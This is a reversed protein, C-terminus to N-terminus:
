GAAHALRQDTRRSAPLSLLLLPAYGVLVVPLTWLVDDPLFWDATAVFAAAAFAIAGIWLDRLDSARLADAWRRDLESAGRRALMSRSMGWCAVLVLVALGVLGGAVALPLGPDARVTRDDLIVAVAMTGSTAVLVVAVIVWGPHLYDFLSAQPPADPGTGPSKVSGLYASLGSGSAMFGVLFALGAAGGIGSPVSDPVLLLVVITVTAGVFGGISIGRLSDRIRRDIESISEDTTPYPFRETFALIMRTRNPRKERYVFTAAFTLAVFGLIWFQVLRGGGDIDGGQRLTLLQRLL